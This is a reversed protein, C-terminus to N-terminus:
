CLYEQDVLDDEYIDMVHIEKSSKRCKGVYKKFDLKGELHISDIYLEECWGCRCNHKIM